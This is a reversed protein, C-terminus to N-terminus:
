PMEQAPEQQPGRVRLEGWHALINTGATDTLQEEGTGDANMVFLQQRGVAVNRGFVIMGGDPSFTPTGDFVTNFTLQVMGSGNANMICIEFTGIGRADPPGTRCMFVIRTGDPSWSAGREEYLNYTLRTPAGAGDANMAYIEATASDIPNDNIDHSTFLIQQGDPSWDPDDDIALPSNTLNIRGAV